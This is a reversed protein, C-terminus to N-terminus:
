IYEGRECMLRFECYICKKKDECKMAVFSTTDKLRQIHEKLQENKSDLERFEEITEYDFLKMFALYINDYKGILINYYISMQFDSLEEINSIRNANATKGSKYDLVFIESKDIDIRDIIGRFTLGEIEAQVEIERDQVVWGEKFHSIPNTIFNKLKERWLLKNYEIKASEFPLLEDLLEDINKSFDDEKEFSSKDQHVKNLLSHLFTGENFEKSKKAEIKQIYTYYYKRKCDLYIQLRKSSWVINKADFNEVKPNTDGVIQSTDSYLIDLQSSEVSSTELGLEYIFKSPLKNDSTSYIITSQKSQELLRKYYQKQLAERDHKTPLSAFQRVSSNLFQDKNSLSPVINENFDVIIVGNFSVGRTELVGMVTVKGGNIDDITIKSIAKLWLFLWEKKSLYNAQFIKKFHNLNDATHEDLLNFSEILEFFEKVGCRKSSSLSDIKELNFGYRAVLYRNDNDNTQWYRYLAELSKYVKRKNYDYGMSLNLNNHKDFLKFYDKFSEDPLIIVIDQADIGDNVMNEVEVFAKSVQEIREEVALVKTNLISKNPIFEIIEKTSLDFSIYGNNEVEVGLLKFRDQIKKNFNSTTYHIIVKTIKSIKDLLELEFFSLYGEIHIDIIDFSKLFINNLRYENPIFCKDTLNNENLLTQYNSLLQKLIGLHIDFEAYPDAELLKEFTVKEASLEEFFRFLADSKTFFRVLSVDLKLNEFAEFSASQKLLLVRHLPDIKIKNELLISRQEFEDMRMLSPLFGEQHRHRDNIIRLARSTPYIHLKKM